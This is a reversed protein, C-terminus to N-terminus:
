GPEACLPISIDVTSGHGLVSSLRLTGGLLQVRERMSCLGIGRAATVAKEVSFGRGADCVQAHLRSETIALSVDLRTTGSHVLANRIAERLTVFVEECMHAPLMTTDGTVKVNTVVSGANAALYETLAEELEDPRMSRRLEGFFYRISELAQAMAERARDLKQQAQAADRGAHLEHLELNQIAVCITHATRDHLERALRALEARHSARMSRLMFGTYSTTSAAIRRVIVRHLALAANADPGAAAFEQLVLPLAAEFLANAMGLPEAPHCHAALERAATGARVPSADWGGTAGTGTRHSDIVDELVSRVQHLMLERGAVGPVASNGQARLRHVFSSVIEERLEDTLVPGESM